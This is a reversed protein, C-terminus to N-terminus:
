PAVAPPLPPAVVPEPPVSLPIQEGRLVEFVHNILGRYHQQVIADPSEKQLTLFDAYDEQLKLALLTRLQTVADPAADATGSAMALARAESDSTLEEVRANLEAVRSELQIVLRKLEDPSLNAEEHSLVPRDERRSKSGENEARRLRNQAAALDSRLASVYSELQKLTASFNFGSQGRDGREQERSVYAPREKRDNRGRRRRGGGEEAVAPEDEDEDEAPEDEDDEDEADLAELRAIKEAERWAAIEQNVAEVAAPDESEAAARLKEELEPSLPTEAEAASEAPVNAAPRTRPEPAAESKLASLITEPLEPVEKRLASQWKGSWRGVARAVMGILNEHLSALRAGAYRLVSLQTIPANNVNFTSFVVASLVANADEASIDALNLQLVWPKGRGIFVNGILKSHEPKLTGTEANWMSRCSAAAVKVAESLEVRALSRAMSLRLRYGNDTDMKALGDLVTARAEASLDKWANEIARVGLIWPIQPMAALAASIGNGDELLCTLMLRTAREEDTPSLRNTNGNQSLAALEAKPDGAPQEPSAAAPQETAEAAPAPPTETLALNVPEPIPSPAPIDKAM